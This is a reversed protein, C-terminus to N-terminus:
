RTWVSTYGGSRADLPTTFPSVDDTRMHSFRPGRFVADDESSRGRFRARQLDGDWPGGGDEATVLYRDCLGADPAAVGHGHLHAVGLNYAAFAHGHYAAAELHGVAAVLRAPQEAVLDRHRQVAVALVERLVALHITYKNCM